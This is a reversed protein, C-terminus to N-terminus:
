RADEPPRLLLNSTEESTYFDVKVRQLNSCLVVILEFSHHSTSVVLNIDLDRFNSKKTSFKM